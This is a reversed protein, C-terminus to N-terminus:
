ENGMVYSLTIFTGAPVTGSTQDYGIWEGSGVYADTITLEAPVGAGTVVTGAFSGVTGNVIPTGADTLTVIQGGIVTGAASPALLNAELVTCGGFGAPMKAFPLETAGTFNGLSLTVIHVDGFSSM